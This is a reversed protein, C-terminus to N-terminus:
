SEAELPLSGAVAAASCSLWPSAPDFFFALLLRLLHSPSPSRPLPRSPQSSSSSSPQHLLTTSFNPLTSNSLLPLTALSWRASPINWPSVRERYEVGRNAVRKGQSERAMQRPERIGRQSTWRDSSRVKRAQSRVEREKAPMPMAMVCSKRRLVEMEWRLSTGDEGGSSWTYWIWCSPFGNPAVNRPIAISTSATPPLLYKSLWTHARSKRSIGRAKAQAIFPLPLQTPQCQAATNSWGRFIGRWCLCHKGWWRRQRRTSRWSDPRPRKPRDSPRQSSFSVIAYCIGQFCLSLPFVPAAAQGRKYDPRYGGEEAPSSPAYWLSASRQIRSPWSRRGTSKSCINFFTLFPPPPLTRASCKLSQCKTAHENRRSVPSPCAM